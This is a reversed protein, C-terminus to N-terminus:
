YAGRGDVVARLTRVMVDIDSTFSWNDVYQLDLQLAEDWSLECRGSIQWLGTMGPRVSLRRREVATYRAVEEALPPRPGVLSMEGRLVNALQPLEDLSTRRLLRGVRTVRPDSRMKFVPGDRENQAALEAKRADADAYMTRFKWMVFPVEGQGIRQNRYLVPGRSSLRVALAIALLLPSLVLVGLAALTRDMVTKLVPQPGHRLPPAIRLLALGGASGTELRKVSVEVIGPALALELGADHLGWSLQRLREGSLRSGATVMAVDAGQGYAAALVAATDEGPDVPARRGLRAAVPVGSGLPGGGVVVVGVVVYPHDTRSALHGAVEDAATPEGIVLVRTVAQAGRRTVSLHRYILKHCVLTGLLPPVLALLCLLPPQRLDAAVRGVALVGLLILWDHLVPLTGRSEGLARGAYRLRSFRVAPWATAALLAPLAWPRLPDAPTCLFLAVSLGPGVIDLLLTVPLYWHPKVGHAAAAARARLTKRATDSTVSTYTDSEQVHWM